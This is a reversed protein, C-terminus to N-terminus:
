VNVVARNTGLYLSHFTSTTTLSKLLSGYANQLFAQETKQNTSIRDVNSNYEIYNNKAYSTRMTLHSAAIVM